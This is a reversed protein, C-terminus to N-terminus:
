FELSLMWEYLMKIDETTATNKMMNAKNSIIVINGKVYGLEPKIRDVSYTWSHDGYIFPVKFVPCVEPIIIDELELDFPIGKRVARGKVRDFIKKVIPKNAWAEVTKREERKCAKCRATDYGIRSSPQKSFEFAEKTEKCSKCTLLAEEPIEIKRSIRGRFEIGREELAKYFSYTTIPPVTVDRADEVTSGSLYLAIAKDLDPGASKM